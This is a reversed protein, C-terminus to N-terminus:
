NCKTKLLNMLTLAFVKGEEETHSHGTMLKTVEYVGIYGLSISSYGGYLLPEISEGKGLRALAGHQWHLPSVDSTVKKLAEHRCM